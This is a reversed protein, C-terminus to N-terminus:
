SPNEVEGYNEELVIEHKTNYVVISNLPAYYPLLYTAELPNSAKVKYTQMTVVTFTDHKSM